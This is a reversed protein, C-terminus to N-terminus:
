ENTELKLTIKYEIESHNEKSKALVILNNNVLKIVNGEKEILGNQSLKSAIQSIYSDKVGLVNKIEKKHNTDIDDPYVSMMYALYKIENPKLNRLLVELLAHYYDYFSKVEKKNNIILM